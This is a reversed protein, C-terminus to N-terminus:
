LNSYEKTNDFIDNQEMSKILFTAVQSSSWNPGGFEEKSAFYLFRSGIKCPPLFM